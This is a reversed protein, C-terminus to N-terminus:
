WEKVYRKLMVYLICLINFMFYLCLISRSLYFSNVQNKFCSLIVQFFHRQSLWYLLSALPCVVSLDSLGYIVAFSRKSFLCHPWQAVLSRCWIHIHVRINTYKLLGVEVKFLVTSNHALYEIMETIWIKRRCIKVRLLSNRKISKYLYFNNYM